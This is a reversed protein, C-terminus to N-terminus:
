ALFAVPALKKPEPVYAASDFALVAAVALDVKHPSDKTRKQIVNGHRTARIHANAVHRALRPDGDHSLSGDAVATFFLDCAPAMFDSNATEQRIVVKGFEHEWAELEANWGPPDATFERVKWRAFAKAVAADVESRPVTWSDDSLDREWAGIVFLHGELTCGVLATSDRSYSGDFGM